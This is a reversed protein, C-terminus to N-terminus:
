GLLGLSLVEEQTANETDLFGAIRGQRMVMIKDSLALVEPLDSSIVIVAVGSSALDRLLRHIESKVGVDVGSTVEDVILVKPSTNLWRSALVKQQNGGSLNIVDINTQKPRIQLADIFKEALSNERKNSFLGLRSCASRMNAASINSKVSKEMFLGQERRDEPIYAIGKEIADKASRISVSHGHLYISGSQARALGFITQALESRGAGVLGTIGLIEHQRVQFSIDRFHPELTFDKVEFLVEGVHEKNHYPIFHLERGVMLSILQQQSYNGISGSAVLKGDRLVSVRDALRFIEDFKHSIYIIGMGSGKLRDIIGYLADVESSSLSATPEDMIIVKCKFAIARAIAVLQQQGVSINSLKRELDLSIGIDRLIKDAAKEVQKNSHFGHLKNGSVINESVSMNPFLSIDQFVTSIGLHRAKTVTMKTVPKDEFYIESGADPEVVGTLAKIFTSKGAGNEGILAHVEGPYLDFEIDRLVKIGAYTKSLNKTQLIREM